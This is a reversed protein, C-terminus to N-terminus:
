CRFATCVMRRLRVSKVRRPAPSGALRKLSIPWWIIHIQPQLWIRRSHLWTPQGAESPMRLSSMAATERPSLSLRTSCLKTCFYPGVTRAAGVALPKSRAAYIMGNAASNKPKPSTTSTIRAQFFRGAGARASPRRGRRPASSSCNRSWARLSVSRHNQEDASQHQGGREKIDEVQGSSEKKTRLFGTGAIQAFAFIGDVFVQAIEVEFVSRALHGIYVILRQLRGELVLCSGDQGLNGAQFIGRRCGPFCSGSLFGSKSVRM